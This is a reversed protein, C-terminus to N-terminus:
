PRTTPSTSPARAPALRYVKGTKGVVRARGDPYELRGADLIYVAGDPGVRVDIPRELAWKQGVEHGPKRATNAVFDEATRADLDVRVVKRGVTAKLPQGGTAFPARDGSQAVLLQGAYPAFPDADPAFVMKGAGSLSPFAARLLTGRDPPVLGSAAHDILFSTEPYGFPRIMEPPPQFRKEWVPALDASYDPWGYWTPGGLPVRLVADPDDKVPRTGRLEMGDNAVFLNGFDNFALGRPLHLGHAEVRLDGGAPSASYIAGGPKEDPAPPIRQDSAGFPNFPATVAVDAGGLIGGTPNATSFRYGYLKLPSFPNDHFDPHPRVWGKAWNDLGVVGSNTATGLGFYLRGNTPNVALDTVGYDGQAPLGGVVTRHTGDYKFASIVGFGAADRHAIFIEGGRVVMGGVPGRLRFGLPLLKIRVSPVPFIQFAKGDRGFGLIAPSREGAGNVAVILNGAHPGDTAPDFAMATPATLNEAYPTLELGPPYEVIARDIAGRRGEPVLRPGNRCGALPALAVVGLLLTFLTSPRPM